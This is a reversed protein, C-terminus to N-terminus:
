LALIEDDSMNRRLRAMVWDPLDARIELPLAELDMVKLATLWEREEGTLAGELQSLGVGQLKVITALAIERPTGKPTVHELMRRRRLAAYVTDAILARDRHGLNKNDRFFERLEADAPARAALIVTLAHVLADLQARALNM